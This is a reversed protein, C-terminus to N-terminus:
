LKYNAIYKEEENTIANTMIDIFNKDVPMDNGDLKKVIRIGLSNVLIMPQRTTIKINKEKVHLKSLLIQRMIGHLGKGNIPPTIISNEKDLSFINACTSEIINENQVFLADQANNNQAIQLAQKNLTRDISKIIKNKDRQDPITIVNIPTKIDDLATASIICFIENFKKTLTIRIAGEIINNKKITESINKTLPFQLELSNNHLYYFNNCLRKYHEHLFLPIKNKVKITTFVGNGFVRKNIKSIIDNNKQVTGNISIWPLITRM